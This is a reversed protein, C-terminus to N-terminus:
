NYLSDNIITMLDKRKMLRRAHNLSTSLDAKHMYRKPLHYTRLMAGEIYRMNGCVFSFATLKDKWTYHYPINAKVADDIFFSNCPCSKRAGKVLIEKIVIKLLYAMSIDHEIASHEIIENLKYNLHNYLSKGITDPSHKLIARIYKISDVLRETLIKSDVTIDMVNNNKILDTSANSLYNIDDRACILRDDSINSLDYEISYSQFLHKLATMITDDEQYNRPNFM